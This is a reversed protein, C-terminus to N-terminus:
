WVLVSITGGKQITVESYNFQQMALEPTNWPVAAPHGDRAIICRSNWTQDKLKFLTHKVLDLWEESLYVPGTPIGIGAEFM